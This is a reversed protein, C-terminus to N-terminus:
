GVSKRDIYRNRAVTIRNETGELQAQLDRFNANSTLQPYKEVVVLLRSLAGTLEGQAQQFRAFAEPNDVLEPTAQISGVRARAEALLFELKRVKNGGYAEACDDERKVWLDVAPPLVGGVREVRTPFRGLPLHPLRGRLAPLAKGWCPM